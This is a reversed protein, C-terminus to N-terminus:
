AWDRLRLLYRNSVFPTGDCDLGEVQTVGVKSSYRKHHHGHLNLAVQKEEVTAAVLARSAEDEEVEEPTLTWGLHEKGRGPPLAPAEHSLLITLPEPAEVLKRHAEWSIAEEPFWDHGPTLWRKDVSFAGSLVGLHVGQWQWHHGSPLIHLNPKVQLLGSPLRRYLGVQHYDEHNGLLVVMRAQFRELELSVVKAFGRSRHFGFDGLHLFVKVQPYAQVASRLARQAYSTNGHWDGFVVVEEPNLAELDEMFNM